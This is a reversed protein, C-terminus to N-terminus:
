WADWHSFLDMLSFVFSESTFTKRPQSIRKKERTPCRPAAKISPYKEQVTKQEVMLFNRWCDALKKKHRRRFSSMLSMLSSVLLYRNIVKSKRVIEPQPSRSSANTSAKGVQGQNVEEARLREPEASRQEASPSRHQQENGRRDRRDVQEEEENHGVGAAAPPVDFTPEFEKKARHFSNM